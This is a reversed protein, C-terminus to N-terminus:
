KLCDYIYVETFSEDFGSVFRLRYGGNNNTAHMVAEVDQLDCRTVMLFIVNM